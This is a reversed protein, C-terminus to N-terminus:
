KLCVSFFFNAERGILQTLPGCWSKSTRLEKEQEKFKMDMTKCEKKKEEYEEQMEYMQRRKELLRTAPWKNAESQESKVKEEKALM